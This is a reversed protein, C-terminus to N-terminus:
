ERGPVQRVVRSTLQPWRGFFRATDAAIWFALLALPIESVLAEAVAGMRSAGGSSLTIDFWADALLMTGAAAAAGQLWPARRYVGIGTLAVAVTLAADFGAWALDWHDTVHRSPLVWTLWVTWPLLFLAVALFVPAAWRWAEKHEHANPEERGDLM